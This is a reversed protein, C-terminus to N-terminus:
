RREKNSLRFWARWTGVAYVMGYGLVISSSWLMFEPSLDPRNWWSPVLVIAGRALYIVSIAVLATRLLPLRAIRGAGSFAYASWIALVGAIGSTMIAPMAESREAAQAVGEGAGFFRYWDPGGFICALHLLAAILSLLGGTTLLLRGDTADDIASASRM